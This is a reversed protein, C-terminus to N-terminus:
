EWPIRIALSQYEDQAQMMKKKKMWKEKDM